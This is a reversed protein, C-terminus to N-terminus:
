HVITPAHLVKKGLKTNLFADFRSQKGPNDSFKDRAREIHEETTMKKRQTNMQLGGVTNEYTLQDGAEFKGALRDKLQKKKREGIFKKPQNDEEPAWLKMEQLLEKRMEDTM